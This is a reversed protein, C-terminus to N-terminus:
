GGSLNFIRIYTDLIYSIEIFVSDM